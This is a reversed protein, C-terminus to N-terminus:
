RTIAGPPPFPEYPPGPHPAARYASWNPATHYVPARNPGDTDYVMGVIDKVIYEGEVFNPNISWVYLTRANDVAFGATHLRYLPVLKNGASDTTIGVPFVNFAFGENTPFHRNGQDDALPFIEAAPAWFHHQFVPYFYRNMLVLPTPSTRPAWFTIGIMLWGPPIVPDDQKWYERSAM